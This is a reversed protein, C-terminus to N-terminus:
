RITDLIPSKILSYHDSPMVQSFQQRYDVQKREEKRSSSLYIGGLVFVLSIVLIIVTEFIYKRFRSLNM